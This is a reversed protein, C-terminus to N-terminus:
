AKTLAFAVVVLGATATVGTFTTLDLPLDFFGITFFSAVGEPTAPTLTSPILKYFLRKIRNCLSIFSLLYVFFVGTSFVLWPRVSDARQSKEEGLKGRQKSRGEWSRGGLDSVEAREGLVRGHIM